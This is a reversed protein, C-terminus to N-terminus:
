SRAVILRWPRRSSRRGPRTRELAGTERRMEVSVKPPVGPLTGWRRAFVPIRTWARREEERMFVFYRLDKVLTMGASAVVAPWDATGRRGGFAKSPGIGDGASASEVSARYALWSATTASRIPVNFGLYGGRRLVDRAAAIVSRHDSFQWFASNCVVLDFPGQGRLLGPLASADGQVFAVNDLGASKVNVRARDIMASSREVCVVRGRPCSRAVVVTAAGTGSALELVSSDKETPLRRVMGKAVREYFHWRKEFRDYAAASSQWWEQTPGAQVVVRQSM